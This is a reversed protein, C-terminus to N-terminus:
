KKKGHYGLIRELQNLKGEVPPCRLAPCRKTPDYFPNLQFPGKLATHDREKCRVDRCPVPSVWADELSTSVKVKRQAEEERQHSSFMELHNKCSVLQHWKNFIVKEHM